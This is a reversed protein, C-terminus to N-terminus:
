CNTSLLQFFAPSVPVQVGATPNTVPSIQLPSGTLSIAIEGVKPKRKVTGSPLPTRPDFKPTIYLSSMFPQPIGQSAPTSPIVDQM